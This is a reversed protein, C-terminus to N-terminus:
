LERKYFRTDVAMVPFSGPLTEKRIASFGNKEYFKHAALFKETTGLFVDRMKRERAWALLVDLLRQGVRHPAGRYAPAVFMKRLAAQGNGIDKLSITGVVAGGHRAVWFNGGGTQYFTRVAFLDPQGERTVPVGFEGKQIGLILNAVEETDRETHERIAIATM